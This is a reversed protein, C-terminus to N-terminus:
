KAAAARKAVINNTARDAVARTLQIEDGAVKGTYQIRITQDQNPITLMEVFSIDDGMVKGETIDTDTKVDDVARSAKGSLKDGDVKFDYTYNQHGVGSDFEATWKGAVSAMKERTAVINTEGFDGVKRTLKMSDGDVKGSYEIRIDQDNFNLTEVFSIDNGTLKGETLATENTATDAMRTAKGTLNTGDSKLDYVYNVPGVMTVFDSKWRGTVDVARTSISLALATMLIAFTKMTKRKTRELSNGQGGGLGTAAKSRQSDRSEKAPSGNRDVLVIGAIGRARTQRGPQGPGSQFLALGAARDVCGSVAGRDIIGGNGADPCGQVAPHHRQVGPVDPQCLQPLADFRGLSQNVALHVGSFSGPSLQSIMLYAPTWMIGLMLYASIGACMVESDVRTAKLIFRVLQGVVFGAFVMHTGTIIWGPVIGRWYLDLWPGALAPIVLLITLVWSRGGVALVASILLVMMLVNEILDGSDLEVVFPYTVVLIILAALFQTMSYRFLGARAQIMGAPAKKLTSEDM